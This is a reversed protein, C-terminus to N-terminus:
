YPRTELAALRAELAAIRAAQDQVLHHLGQLSHTRVYDLVVSVPALAHM